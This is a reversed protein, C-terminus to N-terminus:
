RELEQKFRTSSLKIPREDRFMRYGGKILPALRTRTLVPPNDNIPRQNVVELQNVAIPLRLIDVVVQGGFHYAFKLFAIGAVVDQELGWM